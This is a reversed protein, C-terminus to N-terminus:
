TFTNETATVGDTQRERQRHPPVGLLASLNVIRNKKTDEEQQKKAAEKMSERQTRKKEKKASM